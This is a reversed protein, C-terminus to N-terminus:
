QALNKVIGKVLNTMLTTIRGEGQEVAYDLWPRLQIGRVNYKAGELGHVYPAYPAKNDDVYVRAQWRQIDNYHSARLNGGGSVAVPSGGGQQGMRWPNRNIISRYVALGRVFFEGVEKQTKEPNEKIAKIFEDLGVFKFEKAM